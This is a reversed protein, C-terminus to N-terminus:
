EARLNAAKAVKAWKDIEIRLHQAFEEPTSGIAEAGQAAFQERAEPLRTVRVIESNLKNVLAR